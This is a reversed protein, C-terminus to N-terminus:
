QWRKERALSNVLNRPPQASATSRRDRRRQCCSSASCRFLRIGLRPQLPRCEPPGSIRAPLALCAAAQTAAVGCRLCSVGTQADDKRNGLPNVLEPVPAGIWADSRRPRIRATCVQQADSIKCMTADNGNLSTPTHILGASPTPRPQRHDHHRPSPTTTPKPSRPDPVPTTSSTTAPLAPPSSRPSPSGTSVAHSARGTQLMGPKM